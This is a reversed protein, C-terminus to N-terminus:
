AGGPRSCPRRSRSQPRRPISVQGARVMAGETYAPAKGPFSDVRARIQVIHSSETQAVYDFTVPVDQATVTFATVTVPSQSGAGAKDKEREGCALLGIAILVLPAWRRWASLLQLM